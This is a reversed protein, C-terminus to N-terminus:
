KKGVLIRELLLSLCVIMVLSGGITSALIQLANAALLETHEMLGVSIPIFLVIMYRIFLNATPKVWEPSIIGFSMAAFLLLMGIISGPIFLGFLQQIFIGLALSLLILCLSLLYKLCLKLM